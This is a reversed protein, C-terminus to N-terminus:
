SLKGEIFEMTLVRSSCLKRVLEPVAVLGSVSSVSSALNAACRAANGAEAEFDLEQM